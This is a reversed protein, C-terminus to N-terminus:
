WAALVGAIDSPLDNLDFHREAIRRNHDIGEWGPELATEIGDRDDLHMWRFGYRRILEQAVPYTGVALPRRHVASEVSPNGFGEWTSPLVVLDAAAYADAITVGQDGRVVPVAAAALVKQVTQHFGDETAGRLWYTAGLREALHLGGAVNKRPIARTPQLVLRGQIGLRDRTGARDGSPSLDFRNVLVTSRVEREALQSAALSSTTVHIWGPDVPLPFHATDERHWPLDHHHVLTPRGACAAAVAATAIPNLPLSLINEAVVLDAGTLAGAVQAALEAGGGRGPSVESRDHFPDYALGSVLVDVPGSGAVSSTTWGLTRFADM